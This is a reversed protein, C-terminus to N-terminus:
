TTRCTNDGGLQFERGASAVGMHMSVKLKAKMKEYAAAPDKTRLNGKFVVGNEQYNDVSTVWLTDYGFVSYRLKEVVEQM